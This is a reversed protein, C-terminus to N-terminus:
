RRPSPSAVIQDEEDVFRVRDDAGARRQASRGVRGVHKLRRQRAAVHADDAGGRKRFVLFVNAFVFRQGATEAQHFHDLRRDAFRALNQQAQTRPQLLVIRDLNGVVRDVDRQFHRRLVNAIQVQRVLRNAPEVRGRDFDFDVFRLRHHDFRFVHDFHDRLLRANRAVHDEAVGAITERHRFRHQACRTM